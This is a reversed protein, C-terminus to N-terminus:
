LFFDFFFLSVCVQHEDETIEHQLAFGALFEREAAHVVGDSLAVQLVAEYTDLRNVKPVLQLGVHEDGAAPEEGETKLASTGERKGGRQRRLGEVLDFYLIACIAAEIAKDEDMEKRLAGYQWEVVRTPEAAIVTSPYPQRRVTEDLLATGGIVCGRIPPAPEGKKILPKRLKPKVSSTLSTNESIATASSLLVSSSSSSNSSSSEENTKKNNTQAPTIKVAGKHAAAAHAAVVDPHEGIDRKARYRYLRKLSGDKTTEYSDVAGSAVLLVRDLKQGTTLVTTGADYTRWEARRMLDFFQQPSVGYPRLSSEYLMMEEPTFYLPKRNGIFLLPVM